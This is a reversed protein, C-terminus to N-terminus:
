YIHPINKKYEDENVMVYFWGEDNDKPIVTSTMGYKVMLSNQWEHCTSLDNFCGFRYTHVAFSVVFKRDKISLDAPCLTLLQLTLSLLHQNPAYISSYRNLMKVLAEICDVYSVCPRVYLILDGQQTDVNGMHKGKDTIFDSICSLPFLYYFTEVTCPNDLELWDPSIPKTVDSM